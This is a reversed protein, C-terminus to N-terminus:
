NQRQIGLLCLCYLCPDNTSPCPSRRALIRLKGESSSGGLDHGFRPHYLSLLQDRNRRLWHHFPTAFLHVAHRRLPLVSRQFYLVSPLPGFIVGYCFLCDCFIFVM